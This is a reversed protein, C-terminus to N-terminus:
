RTFLCGWCHSCIRYRRYALIETKAGWLGCWTRMGRIGACILPNAFTTFTVSAASSMAMVILLIAALLAYNFRRM